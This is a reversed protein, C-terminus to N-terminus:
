VLPPPEQPVLAQEAKLVEAKRTAAKRKKTKLARKRASKLKRKQIAKRRAAMSGKPM